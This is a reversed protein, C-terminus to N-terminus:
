AALGMHVSLHELMSPERLTGMRERVFDLYRDDQGYVYSTADQVELVNIEDILDASDVTTLAAALREDNAAVFLRHPGVPLVIFSDALNIAVSQIVPRDSVLFQRVGNEVTVISWHMGSIRPVIHSHNVMSRMINAASLEFFTEDQAAVYEALTAPQDSKRKAQYREELDAGGAHWEAWVREKLHAMDQPMRFMLSMLFRSWANRQKPTLARRDIMAALATAADCDVPKFFESELRHATDEPVGNVSYLRDVFGMAKPARRLPKVTKGDPRSFQM